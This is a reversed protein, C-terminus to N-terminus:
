AMSKLAGLLVSPSVSFLPYVTLQYPAQTMLTDPDAVPPNGDIIERM